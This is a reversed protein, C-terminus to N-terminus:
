EANHVEVQGPIPQSRIRQAAHRLALSGPLNSEGALAECIRAALEREVLRNQQCWAAFSDLRSEPLRLTM